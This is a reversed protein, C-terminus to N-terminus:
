IWSQNENLILSCPQKVSKTGRDGGGGGGWVCVNEAFKFANIITRPPFQTPWAVITGVKPLGDHACM